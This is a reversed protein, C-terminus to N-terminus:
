GGRDLYGHELFAAVVPMFARIVEEGVNAGEEFQRRCKLLPWGTTLLLSPFANTIQGLFLNSV